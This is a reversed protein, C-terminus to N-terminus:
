PVCDVCNSEAVLFQSRGREMKGTGNERGPFPTMLRKQGGRDEKRRVAEPRVCRAKSAWTGPRRKRGDTTAMRVAAIAPGTCPPWSRRPRRSTSGNTGTEPMEVPWPSLAPREHRPRRAAPWAFGMALAAGQVAPEGAIPKAGCVPLRDPFHEDQQIPFSRFRSQYLHGRGGSHRHAHWRAAHTMSLWQMFRSLQGDSKPWLVLHFHNPMLCYACLRM